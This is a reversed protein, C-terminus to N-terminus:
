RHVELSQHAETRRATQHSRLRSCHRHRTPEETRATPRGATKVFVRALTTPSHNQFLYLASKTAPTEAPPMISGETQVESRSRFQVFDCHFSHLRFEPKSSITVQQRTAARAAADEGVAM